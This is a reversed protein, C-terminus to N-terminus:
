QQGPDFDNNDSNGSHQRSTALIFDSRRRVFFYWLDGMGVAFLEWRPRDEAEAAPGAESAAEDSDSDETGSLDSFAAHASEPVSADTRHRALTRPIHSATALAPCQEAGTDAGLAHGQKAGTSDTGLAGIGGTELSPGEETGAIDTGSLASAGVDTGHRAAADERVFCKSRKGM